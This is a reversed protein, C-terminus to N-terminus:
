WGSPCSEARRFQVLPGSACSCIGPILPSVLLCGLHLLERRLLRIKAAKFCSWARLVSLSLCVAPMLCGGSAMEQEPNWLVFINEMNSWFKLKLWWPRNLKRLVAQNLRQAWGDSQGRADWLRQPQKLDCQVYCHHHSCSWLPLTISTVCM